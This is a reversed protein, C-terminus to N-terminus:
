PSESAASVSIGAGAGALLAFDIAPMLPQIKQRSALPIRNARVREGPAIVAIEGDESGVCAFDEIVAGEGVIARLVRAQRGVSVGAMLYSEAVKAAPGVRCGTSVVSQDVSGDIVCGHFLLSGSVSALPHLRPSAIAAAESASATAPRMHRGVTVQGDLLEMTATWLSEITGVDRWYGDFRHVQMPKGAAVAQPFIDKGFDHSSGDNRADAILWARLESWRFIYIGLSALNSRPRAPKEAFGVIAGRGDTEIIGFRGAEHWAVPKAAVTVTAGSRQHAELMQRYDMRYIHDGSLVLVHEPNRSDIYDMNQYIADATGSYARKGPRDSPLLVTGAAGATEAATWVRSRPFCAHVSEARYQTLVGVSEIGAERCNDLTFDIIRRDGGFPVAPKALGTTLPALRKGEGGALLMAICDKIPM